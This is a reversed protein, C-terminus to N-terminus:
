KFLMASIERHKEFYFILATGFIGCSIIEGIGVTLSFYPFMSIGGLGSMILVLPIILMNSIITPISSFYPHKKLMCTVLAAALTAATGFVIDYISGGCLINSVLCGITLGPVAAFSYVPLVCLAESIRVQIVGSSLGFLASIMTLATYLAAIIGAKTIFKVKKNM